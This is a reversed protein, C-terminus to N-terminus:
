DVASTGIMTVWYGEVFRAFTSEDDGMYLMDPDPTGRILTRGLYISLDAVKLSFSDKEKSKQGLTPTYWDTMVFKGEGEFKELEM